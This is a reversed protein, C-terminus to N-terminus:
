SFSGTFREGLSHMGKRCMGCVPRAMRRAVGNVLAEDGVLVAVVLVDHRVNQTKSSRTM